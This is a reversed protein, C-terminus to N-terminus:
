SLLRQLAYGVALTVVEGALILRARPWLSKERLGIALYHELLGVGVLWALGLIVLGFKDFAGIVFPDLRLAFAIALLASRLQIVVAVGLVSLGIWSIARVLDGLVGGLPGKRVEHERRRPRRTNTSM